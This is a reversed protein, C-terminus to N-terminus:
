YMRLACHLEGAVVQVDRPQCPTGKWCHLPLVYLFPLPKLVAGPDFVGHGANGHGGPIILLRCQWEGAPCEMALMM